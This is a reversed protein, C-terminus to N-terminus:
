RQIVAPAWNWRYLVYMLMTAALPVVLGIELSKFRHSSYGVIWPLLAGGLNAMTFMVSGVHSATSGFERSLRSITIPYVAALGFGAVAASGVVFPITRSLLLGM